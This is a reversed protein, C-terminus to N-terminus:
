PEQRRHCFTRPAFVLRIAIRWTEIHGHQMLKGPGLYKRAADFIMGVPLDLDNRDIARADERAHDAGLNVPGLQDAPRLFKGAFTRAWGKGVPPEALMQHCGRQGGVVQILPSHFLSRITQAFDAFVQSCLADFREHRHDHVKGLSIGREESVQFKGGRLCGCIVM